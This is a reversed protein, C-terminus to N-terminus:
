SSMIKNQIHLSIWYINTIKIHLGCTILL